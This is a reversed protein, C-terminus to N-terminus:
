SETGGPIAGPETLAALLPLDHAFTTQRTGFPYVSYGFGNPAFALVQGAHGVTYDDGDGEVIAVPVNAAAQAAEVEDLTGVLGIFGVDFSDLYDRVVEPTDRAPDVTVFVVQANPPTGPKELVEALQALHVPCIDPCFTYGFYLFTVRGATEAAFDFPRGETDTLTFEPAPTPGALEIGELVGWTGDVIADAEDDDGAATGCAAALVALAALAAALRARRPSRSTRIQGM